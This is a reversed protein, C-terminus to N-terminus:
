GASGPVIPHPRAARGDLWDRAIRVASTRNSARFKQLVHEVHKSVTKPAAGLIAAIESDRKGKAIWHMVECERATFGIHKLRLFNPVAPVETIILHILGSQEEPFFRILLRGRTGETSLARLPQLAPKLRLDAASRAVWSAVNAPLHSDGLWRPFYARLVQRVPVSLSIPHLNSALIIRLPGSGPALSDITRVRRWAAVFHPQLLKALLREQACFVSDRLLTIVVLAPRDQGVIALQDNFGMPKAIGNFHDTRTWADMTVLQRLHFVPPPKVSSGWYSGLPHDHIFAALDKPAAVATHIRHLTYYSAGVGVEECGSALVRFRSEVATLMALSLEPVTQAAYAAGVSESLWRLDHQNIM